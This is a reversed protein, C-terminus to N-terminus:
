SRLHRLYRGFLLLSVEKAIANRERIQSSPSLYAGARSRLRDVRRQVFDSLTDTEPCTALTVFPSPAAKQLAVLLPEAALGGIEALLEKVVRAAIERALPQAATIGTEASVIHGAERVLAAEAAPRAPRAM